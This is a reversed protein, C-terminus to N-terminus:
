MEREPGYLAWKYGPALDACKHYFIEDRKLKVSLRKNELLFCRKGNTTSRSCIRDEISIDISTGKHFRLTRGYCVAKREGTCDCTGYKESHCPRKFNKSHRDMVSSEKGTKATSISCHGCGLLEGM